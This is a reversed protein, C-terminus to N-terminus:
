LSQVSVSLLGWDPYVCIAELVLNLEPSRTYLAPLLMYSVTSSFCLYCSTDTVIRSFLSSEGM